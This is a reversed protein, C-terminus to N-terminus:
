KKGAKIAALEREAAKIEESKVSTWVFSNFAFADLETHEDDKYLYQMPTLKYDECMKGITLVMNKDFETVSNFKKFSISQVKDCLKMLTEIGNRAYVLYTKADFPSGNVTLVAKDLILIIYNFLSEAEKDAQGEIEKKLDDYPNKNKKIKFFNFPVGNKEASFDLVKLPKIEFTDGDLVFKM